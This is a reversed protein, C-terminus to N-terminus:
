CYDEPRLLTLGHEDEIIWVEDIEIVRLKMSPTDENDPQRLLALGRDILAARAEPARYGDAVLGVTFFVRRGAHVGTEILVGGAVAEEETCRGPEEMPGVEM